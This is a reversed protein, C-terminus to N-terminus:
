KVGSERLCRVKRIMDGRQRRIFGNEGESSASVAWARHVEGGVIELGGLVVAHQRWLFIGHRSLHLGAEDGGEGGGESTSAVRM